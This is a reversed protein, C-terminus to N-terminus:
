EPNLPSIQSWNGQDWLWLGLAGFDAIIEDKNDGDPDAALLYEPNMASLQMWAGANWLWLGIPGFDVAIEDKADGNVDAKIMFEANAGSLQTWVGSDWLWVGWHGFSGIMEDDADGDTDATIMYDANVGSLETWGGGVTWMWLGTPGFDGVFYRTGGVRGSTVYDANAGSLETWAGANWLWLGTGGFDGIIEDGGTGDVNASTVYEAEVGSLVTWVGGDYLWMGSAGFAGVIEDTGDADVDGIALCAPSLLSLQVWAGSDWLWLGLPGFAGVIEDIGDGDVDGATLSVPNASTLQTWAMNQYLWVGIPGFDVATEDAGDGNFDGVAHKAAWEDWYSIKAVFADYLGGNFTRDPGTIVPFTAETSSTRGSVYANGAPDVVIGRGLEQGVGGIYGCYKIVTGSASVKAVFVDADGNYSLDPGKVVPFSTEDSYTYGLVYANGSSDIAVSNNHWCFDNNVGGIFGCYILGTGGANIKAVFVDSGGNQALDPGMIVPFTVETSDTYGAIFANGGSDVAIGCSLDFGSGGVYGCYILDTGAPNVKAVYADYGGNHNLDPGVKVPFTAEDSNTGASVYANNDRDLAISSVNDDGSGGIYGCYVLSVGTSNVKAVFGDGGGNYTLDPGAIVPFTSEDSTTSGGIFANGGSDVTICHVYEDGSGGIYGCYDLNTGSSDLKAVFGDFNGNYTLDPGGKLPFTLEDSSTCGGVYANGASDVAIGYAGESGSGGIYTCYVITKGDASVKAVFVDQGGNYSLDAGINVPFTIDSSMTDGVVYANGWSDVAVDRAYDADSGGVYGCYVLVAPDLFLPKTRDHDGVWFGYAFSDSETATRHRRPNRRGKQMEALEYRVPIITKQGDTEQYATPADDQFKGAPTTVELCGSEDIELAAVGRYAFQILSPDAGPRIVFGYKLRNMECSYILDIGPWVNSYAIKTYTPLNTQWAPPQGKFYSITTKGNEAATPQVGPNGGVFDLKVVWVPSAMGLVFTLGGPTFYLAKDKGQVYFGVRKDIQGRNPIFYFLTEELKPNIITSSNGLDGTGSPARAVSAKASSRFGARSTPTFILAILFVVHIVRFRRM